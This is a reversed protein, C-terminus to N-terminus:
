SPPPGFPTEGTEVPGMPEPLCAKEPQSEIAKPLMDEPSSLMHIDIKSSQTDQWGEVLSSASAIDKAASAVRNLQKPSVPTTPLSDALVDLRSKLKSRLTSDKTHQTVQTLHVTVTQQRLKNWQHRRVRQKLADYSVLAKAAIEKLGLGQLFLAKALEWDPKNPQDEPCATVAIANSM